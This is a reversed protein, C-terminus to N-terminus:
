AEGAVINELLLNRAEGLSQGTAEVKWERPGASNRNNLVAAAASASKFPVDEVFRIGGGTLLIIKGEDLLQQRLPAYQNVKNEQTTGVSGKLVVIEGDNEIARADVEGNKHALRLLFPLGSNGAESEGRSGAALFLPEPTVTPRLFDMGLTPLLIQLQGLFFEM